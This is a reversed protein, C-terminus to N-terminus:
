RTILANDEVARINQYSGDSYRGKGKVVTFLTGDVLQGSPEARDVTATQSQVCCYGSLIIIFRVIVGARM